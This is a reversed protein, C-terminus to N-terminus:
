DNAAEMWEFDLDILQTGTDTHYQSVRSDWVRWSVLKLWRDTAADNVRRMDDSSVSAVKNVVVRVHLRTKDDNLSPNFDTVQWGCGVVADNLIGTIRTIPFSIPRNM